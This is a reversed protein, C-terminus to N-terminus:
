DGEDGGSTVDAVSVITGFTFAHVNAMNRGMATYYYNATFEVDGFDFLVGGMVHLNSRDLRLDEARINDMTFERAPVGPNNAIMSQGIVEGETVTHGGTLGVIAILRDGIPQGVRVDTTVRHGPDGFRYVVEGEARAFGGTPPFYGGVMLAQALDVQADGRTAQGGIRENGEDDVFFTGTPEDYGTPLKARTSSTVLWLGRSSRTLNYNGRLRLDGAGFQTSNFNLIQDTAEAASDFNYGLLLPDATYNIQSVDLSLAGDFDDTFGYRAGLRVSKARFEGNLPFPQKTGDALYEYDAQQIHTDMTLVLRDQPLTWPSAYAPSSGAALILLATLAAPLCRHSFVMM